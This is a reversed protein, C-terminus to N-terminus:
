TNVAGATYEGGTMMPKEGADPPAPVVTVTSPSFRSAALATENLPTGAWCTATAEGRLSVAVTGTCACPPGM